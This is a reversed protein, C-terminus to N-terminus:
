PALAGAAGTCIVLTGDALITSGTVALTDAYVTALADSIVTRGAIQTVTLTAEVAGGGAGGGEVFGTAVAGGGGFAGGGGTATGMSGSATIQTVAFSPLKSGIGFIGALLVAGGGSGSSGSSGANSGASVLPSNSGTSGLSPYGAGGPGVLLLIGNGCPNSCSLGTPDRYLLPNNMAYGYTNLTQPTAQASLADNRGFQALLVRGALGLPDGSLFRGTQPDYYRARMYYLGSESDFERGAYAFPNTLGACPQTRGFSDYNYSCAPNGSSDTLMAISGLANAHYFYTQGSREMTMMQDVGPGSTYRAVMGGSANLELLISNGDYLYNTVTGNVNKQIRRGLADYQYTATGGNPFQIAALHEDYDWTYTTTGGPGSRSVLNGNKDYTFTYGEASILRGTSDYQYSGAASALRNGAGDYSYSEPSAGTAATIRNLGDFQYAHSGSPDSISTPNGNPDYGYSFKPGAGAAAILTPQNAGDYQYSTSIGNSYQLTTRRNAADYSFQASGGSPNAISLPRNSADYTYGTVGFPDTLSTRRSNLNYAYMLTQGFRSDTSSALRGMADYSFTVTTNANSASLLNGTADYTYKSTTGDPYTKQLMRGDADYQFQVTHGNADTKSVPNGRANYVLTTSHGAADAAQVMWQNFDYNQSKRYGGADRFGTLETDTMCGCNPTTYYYQTSNGAVDTVKTLNDLADHSYSTKNGNADTYQSLNGNADYAFSLASGLPTTVATLRNLADWQAGNTNGVADTVGTLRRLEDYQYRAVNGLPDTLSVRNGSGDYAFTRTNGQPDAATLMEGFSDYTFQFSVGLPQTVRTMNGNADYGFQTVAGLANTVSTVQNFPPDYTLRTTNGLPDTITALNGLTDYSLQTTFGEEDIIGSLKTDPTFTYSRVNGDAKIVRTVNGLANYYFSTAYGRPDVFITEGALPLYFFRMNRGASDSVRATQGTSFYEYSTSNGAPKTVTQLLHTFPSAAYYAYKTTNGAADTVSALNGSTDYSYAVKRGAFDQIAVIHGSGDYNLTVARGLADTITSLGAGNYSFTTSNHNRDTISILQGSTNFGWVTGHTSRLSYGQASKTLTLDLGPPSVYVGGSLAFSFLGGSEDTFTVSTQNDKLAMSYNYAWGYGFPGNTGASLSNYTRQILTAPGRSTILLDVQQLYMNGNSVNVPDSCNTGNTNNNNGTPGSQGPPQPPNGGSTGGLASPTNTQEIAYEFSGPGEVIWGFGTWAGFVTAQESITDTSGSKIDSAVSKTIASPADVNSLSAANSSNLVLTPVGAQGNLQLAKITSISPTLALEEWIENELSSSAAEFARSANVDGPVLLSETGQANLDYGRGALQQADMLLDAPTVLFPLDFLNTVKVSASTACEEVFPLPSAIQLPTFVRQKEQEVREFYRLGAIAVLERSVLNPDATPLQGLLADIRSAILPESIQNYGVTIAINEGAVVGHNLVDTPSTAYSETHTVRLVFESGYSIEVTGTAVVQENVLLQPFLNVMGAPTNALGGFKNIISQDNATAPIFGVTLSGTSVQPMPVTSSFYQTSGAGMLVGITHSPLSPGRASIRLPPYPFSPLTDGSLPTITGTYPMASFDQGPYAQQFAALVQAAYIESSLQTQVSSLFKTRDFAPEPITIGPQFTQRKISPTMPVWANGRPTNLWAEAWVHLINFSSGQDTVITNFNLFAFATAKDKVGLWSIADAVPVNIYGSAYRAPIGAARLLAILLTAQDADNGKGSWLVSESNQVLMYYPVFQINNYVYAFLAAPSNGLSKAQAVIDPTLVVTTDAALDASTPPDTAEPPLITVPASHPQLKSGHRDAVETIRSRSAAGLGGRLKEVEDRLWASDHSTASQSVRDFSALSAAMRQRYNATFAHWKALKDALVAQPLNARRLKAEISSFQTEYAENLVALKRHEERIAAAAAAPDSSINRLRSRTQDLVESLREGASPVRDPRIKPAILQRVKAIRSDLSQGASPESAVATAPVQAALNGGLWSCVLLAALVTQTIKTEMKVAM